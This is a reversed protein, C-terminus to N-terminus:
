AVRVRPDGDYGLLPLLLSELELGRWLVAHDQRPGAQELLRAGLVGLRGLAFALGRDAAAHRRQYREVLTDHGLWRQFARQDGALQRRGAGLTRAFALMHHEREENTVAGLYRRHYDAYDARLRHILTQRRDLEYRLFVQLRYLLTFPLAWDPPDDRAGPWDGLFADTLEDLLTRSARALTPPLGEALLKGIETREFRLRPRPPEVWKKKVPTPSRPPANM